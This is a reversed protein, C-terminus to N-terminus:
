STGWRMAALRGTRRWGAWCHLWVNGHKLEERVRAMLSVLSALKPMYKAPPADVMPYHLRPPARNLDYLADLFEPEVISLCNIDGLEGHIICPEVHSGGGAISWRKNILGLGADHAGATPYLGDIPYWGPENEMACVVLRVNLAEMAELERVYRPCSSGFVGGVSTRLAPANMWNVAEPQVVPVFPLTVPEAPTGAAHGEVVAEMSANAFSTGAVTTEKM